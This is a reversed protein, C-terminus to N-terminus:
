YNHHEITERSRPRLAITRSALLAYDLTVTLLSLQVVAGWLGRWRIQRLHCTKASLPLALLGGFQHGYIPSLLRLNRTDSKSPGDRAGSMDTGRFFPLRGNWHLAVKRTAIM